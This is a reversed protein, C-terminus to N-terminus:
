GRGGAIVVKDLNAAIQDIVTALSPPEPATVAATLIPIAPARPRM